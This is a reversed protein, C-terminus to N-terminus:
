SCPMSLCMTELNSNRARITDLNYTSKDNFLRASLHVSSCVHNYRLPIILMNAAYQFSKMSMYKAISKVCKRGKDRENRERGKGEKVRCSVSSIPVM